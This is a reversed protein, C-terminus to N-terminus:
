PLIANSLATLFKYNYHSNTLADALQSNTPVWELNTGEGAAIADKIVSLEVLLREESVAKQLYIHDFLSACDARLTFPMGKGVVERMLNSILFMEDVCASCALTDGAFTSKVVRRLTRSKWNILYFMERKGDCGSTLTWLGGGVTKGNEGNGWSSDHYGVMQVPGHLKVHRLKLPREQMHALTKNAQLADSVTPSSSRQSLRCVAYSYDPRTQGTCWSLAGILGRYLTKEKEHLVRSRDATEELQITSIESIYKEQDLTIELLEGDPGHVCRLHVGCYM